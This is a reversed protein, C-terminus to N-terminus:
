DIQCQSTYLQGSGTELLLTAVETNQYEAAKHLPVARYHDAVEPRAGRTLLMRAIEVDGSIAALHLPTFGATDKRCVQNVDAGLALTNESSITALPYCKDFLTFGDADQKSAHAHM